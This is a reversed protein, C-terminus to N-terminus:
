TKNWFYVKPKGEKPEKTSVREIHNNQTLWLAKEISIPEDNYFFLAKKAIMETLDIVSNPNRNVNQFSLSNLDTLLISYNGNDYEKSAVQISKNSSLLKNAKVSSIQKGNYLIKPNKKSNQALPMGNKDIPQGENNFYSTVGNKISYFGEEGNIEINGTELPTPRASRELYIPEKSIKVTPSKSNKGSSQINLDKNEKLLEIAKDSSIKKGEYYITAGKKAMEIVHDLPEVPEPATPSPPPPINSKESKKVKPAKATKPAKPAAPTDPMPPFDPFPEADAKQKDSMLGYIYELRDVDKKKIQISKSSSLMTNYKKALANYEAMLKRSAGDQSNQPLCEPFPQAGAKQNASMKRFVTELVKLDSLPIKRKEIPVANYKKALENYRSMEQYSAQNITKSSESSDVEILKTESFGLLLLALLPLLLLSRLLVAKKSTHTKM